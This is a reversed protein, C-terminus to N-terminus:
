RFGTLPSMPVVGASGASCNACIITVLLKASAVNSNDTIVTTLIKAATAGDQQPNMIVSTLGKAQCESNAQTCTTAFAPTSLVALALILFARIM